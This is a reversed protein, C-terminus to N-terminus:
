RRITLDYKDISVFSASHTKVVKYTIDPAWGTDEGELIGGFMKYTIMDDRPNKSIYIDIDALKRVFVTKFFSYEATFCADHIKREATLDAPSMYSTRLTTPSLLYVTFRLPRGNANKAIDLINPYIARFCGEISSSFSVRDPLDEATLPDSDNDEIPETSVPQRPELKAPLNQNFSIHYLSPIRKSSVISPKKYREIVDKKIEDLLKKWQTKNSLAELSVVKYVSGQRRAIGSLRQRYTMDIVMDSERYETLPTKGYLWDIDFCGLKYLENRFEKLKNFKSDTIAEKSFPLAVTTKIYNM